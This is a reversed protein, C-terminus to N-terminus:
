LEDGDDLSRIAPEIVQWSFGRRMLAQATKDRRKRPEERAYKRWYSEALSRASEEEMEPTYAALSEQALDSDIGRLRMKQALDRKGKGGSAGARIMAAAVEADDVYGYGEMAEAAADATQRHYGCDTLYKVLEHRTRSRRGLCYLAAERAMRLEPGMLLEEWAAETIERGEELSAERLTSKHLSGAPEEDLWIACRSKKRPMPEIKTVIPM